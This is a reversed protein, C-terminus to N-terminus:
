NETSTELKKEYSVSHPSTTQGRRVSLLPNYTHLQEPNITM